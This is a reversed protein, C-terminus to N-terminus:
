IEIFIGFIFYFKWTELILISNELILIFHELCLIYTIIEPFFFGYNFNLFRSIFVYKKLILISTELISTSKKLFLIFYEL